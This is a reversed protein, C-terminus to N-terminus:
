RPVIPVLVPSGSPVPVLVPAAPPPPPNLLIPPAAPMAILKPDAVGAPAPPNETEGVDIIRQVGTYQGSAGGAALATKLKEAAALFDKTGTVLQDFQAQLQGRYNLTRGYNTAAVERLSAYFATVDGTLGQSALLRATCTNITDQDNQLDATARKIQADLNTLANRAATYQSELRGMQDRMREQAAVLQERQVKTVWTAGWRVMDEQGMTEEMRAEAPEYAKALARYATSNKDGGGAVYANLAEAINDLLLRQGPMIQLAKGYHVFAEGAQKQGTAIVALNNEALVSTPDAAALNTFYTKAQALNNSRYAALGGLTLADPNQDDDALVAKVAELTERTRGAKYLELAPRAAETWRKMVVGVQARPMWKGRFKVPDKDAISEYRALMSQAEGAQKARPYKEAFGKYLDIVARLDDAAKVQAGVRTWEQAAAEEASVVSTLTIRAIDGPKVTVVKGDDVKITIVDGTRAMTGNFKRGDTLEIIDARLVPALFLALLALIWARSKMAIEKWPNYTLCGEWRLTQSKGVGGLGGTREQRGGGVDVIQWM